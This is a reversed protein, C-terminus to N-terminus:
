PVPPKEAVEGRPGYRDLLRLAQSLIGELVAEAGEKECAEAPLAILWGREGKRVRVPWSPDERREHARLAGVEAAAAADLRQLIAQLRRELAARREDAARGGESRLDNGAAM